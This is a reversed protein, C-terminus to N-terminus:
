SLNIEMTGNNTINIAKLDRYFVTCEASTHSMQVNVVQDDCINRLQLEKNIETCDDDTAHCKFCRIM